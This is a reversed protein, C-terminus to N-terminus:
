GKCLVCVQVIARGAGPAPASAVGIGMTIGRGVALPAGRGVAAQSADQHIHQLM